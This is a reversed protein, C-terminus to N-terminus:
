LYGQGIYCSITILSYSRLRKGGGIKFMDYVCAFAVGILEEIIFKPWKALVDNPRLIWELTQYNFTSDKISHNHLQCSNEM